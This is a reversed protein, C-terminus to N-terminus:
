RRSWKIATDVLRDVAEAIDGLSDIIVLILGAVLWMLMLVVVLIHTM